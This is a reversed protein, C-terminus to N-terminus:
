VRVVEVKEIHGRGIVECSRRGKREVLGERKIRASVRRGEARTKVRLLASCKLVVRRFMRTGTVRVVWPREYEEVMVKFCKACLPVGESDHTTALGKCGECREKM